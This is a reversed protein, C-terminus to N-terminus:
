RAVTGLVVLDSLYPQLKTSCNKLVVAGFCGQWWLVADAVVLVGLGRFDAHGRESGVSM